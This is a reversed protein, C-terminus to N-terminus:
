DNYFISVNVDIEHILNLAVLFKNSKLTTWFVNTITSMCTTLFIMTLWYNYILSPFKEFYVDFMSFFVIWLSLVILASVIFIIWDLKSIIVSKKQTGPTEVLTFCTMGLFKSLIHAPRIVEYINVCSSKSKKM